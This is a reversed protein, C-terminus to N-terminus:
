ATRTSYTRAKQIFRPITKRLIKKNRKQGVIL